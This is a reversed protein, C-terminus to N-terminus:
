GRGAAVEAGRERLTAGNTGFSEEALEHLAVHVIPAPSRLEARLLDHAGRLFEARQEGSVSGAPISVELHAGTGAVRDGGVYWHGAPVLEVHVVADARRADLARDLLETIGSALRQQQAAPLDPRAVTIRAFPM